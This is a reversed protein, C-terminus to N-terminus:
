LNDRRLPWLGVVAILQVVGCAVFVGVWGLDVLTPALLPALARPLNLAAMLLVFATTPLSSRAVAILAVAHLGVLLAPQLTGEIAAFSPLMLPEHWLASSAAFGLWIAGLAGGAIMSARGPGLKAVLPGMGLAGTIGAITAIPVVIRTYEAPDWELHVIIFESGVAWLANAALLLAVFLLAIWLLRGWHDGSREPKTASSPAGAAEPRGPLWLLAGCTVSMIAIWWAPLRLGAAMGQEAFAEGLVMGGLLGLGVAHGSGMAMATWSQRGRLTDLALKDVLVDQLAAVFNLTIWLITVSALSGTGSAAREAWAAALGWLCAGACLQLGALVAARVRLSWSGRLDLWLAVLVKLVWPVAGSALLGAQQEIPTGAQALAALLVVGVGAIIGQVLYALGVAGVCRLAQIPDNASANSPSAL